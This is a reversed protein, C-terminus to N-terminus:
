KQYKSQKPTVSKGEACTVMEVFHSIHNWNILGRGKWVVSLNGLFPPTHVPWCWCLHGRASSESFEPDWYLLKFLWKGGVALCHRSWGDLWPGHMVDCVNFIVCKIKLIADSLCFQYYAEMKSMTWTMKRTWSKPTMGPDNCQGPFWVHRSENDM